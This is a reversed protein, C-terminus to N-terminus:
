TAKKRGMEIDLDDRNREKHGYHFFKKGMLRVLWYYRWAAGKLWWRKWVSAKKTDSLMAQLFQQDALKRHKENFGLWYNFDHWDCSASFLYQPPKFRGGKGGCGNCIASKEEETLHRFRIKMPRSDVKKKKVRKKSM